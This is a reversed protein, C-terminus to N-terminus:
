TDAGNGNEGGEVKNKGNRLSQSRTVYESLSEVDVTKPPKSENLFEKKFVGIQDYSLQPYLLLTIECIRAGIQERRAFVRELAVLSKEANPYSLISKRWEVNKERYCGKVLDRAYDRLYVFSGLIKNQVRSLLALEDFLSQLEVKLQLVKLDGDLVKENGLGHEVFGRILGSVSVGYSVKSKRLWERVVGRLWVRECGDKL